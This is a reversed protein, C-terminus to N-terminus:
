EYKLGAICDECLLRGDVTKLRTSLSDCDECKGSFTQSNLYVEDKEEITSWESAIETLAPSMQSIDHQTIIGVLQNNEVIPLQSINCKGMIKLAEQLSIYPEIVVIPTSMVDEVSIDSANKGECVVKKIIDGEAVIGIPHSQEAVILYGIKKDKMLRAAEFVTTFPQVVVPNVKMVEKVLVQKNMDQEGNLQRNFVGIGFM